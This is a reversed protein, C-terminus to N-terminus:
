PPARNTSVFHRVTLGVLLLNGVLACGLWITAMLSFRTFNDFVPNLEMAIATGM